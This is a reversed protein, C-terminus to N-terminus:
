STFPYWQSLASARAALVLEEAGPSVWSGAGRVTADASRACEEMWDWAAAPSWPANMEMRWTQGSARTTVDIVFSITKIQSTHDRRTRSTAAHQRM